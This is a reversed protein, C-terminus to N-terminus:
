TRRTLLAPAIPLLIPERTATPDMELRLSESAKSLSEGRKFATPALDELLDLYDREGDVLKADLPGSGWVPNIFPNSDQPNKLQERRKEILATVDVWFSYKKADDLSQGTRWLFVNRETEALFWLPTPPTGQFGLMERKRLENEISKLIGLLLRGTFLNPGPTHLEQTDLLSNDPPPSDLSM